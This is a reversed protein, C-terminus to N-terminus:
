KNGKLGDIRKQLYPSFHGEYRTWLEPRRWDDATIYRRCDPEGCGCHFEDYPTSDSTAYDFCVEEGPSIDRLAVLYNQGDLGANPACSHNFYDAPESLGYPALHLGEEVQIAQERQYAELEYLDDFHVIIGGWVTLLEGFQIPAIAFVGNQGKHLAKGAALRPSLYHTRQSNFYPWVSDSANPWEQPVLGAKLRDIKHQIYPSFHGAYRKWLEPNSWDQSTVQRRCDESGCTCSFQDYPSADSMAYDFCVQEGPSIARLAVLAIQGSLGANPNCSHNFYDAAEPEGIPALYLYDAVQIFHHQRREDLNQLQQLNVIMGGWVTLLEGIQIHAAAFVGYNDGGPIIEAQLKPSLFHTVRNM